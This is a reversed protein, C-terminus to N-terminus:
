ASMDTITKHALKTYYEVAHLGKKPDHVTSANPSHNQTECIKLRIQSGFCCPCTGATGLVKM